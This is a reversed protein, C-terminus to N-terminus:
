AVYYGPYIAEIYCNKCNVFLRRAGNEIKETAGKPILNKAYHEYESADKMMMTKIKKEAM